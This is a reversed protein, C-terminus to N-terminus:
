CLLTYRARVIPLHICISEKNLENLCVSLWLQKYLIGFYASGGEETVLPTSGSAPGTVPDPDTNLETLHESLLPRKYM